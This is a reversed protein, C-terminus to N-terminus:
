EPVCIKGKSMAILTKYAVFLVAFTALVLGFIGFLAYLLTDFGLFVEFSAISFACLPFTFAWWSLAFSIRTFAKALSLMLLMFFLAVFYAVLSLTSHGGFLAAFDVVFISPPAIFIFLTPLFKSELSEEFILRSTILATLVLWFFCGIAFFFLSFEPSIKASHGALPVILNGVIPIFWAPSLLHRKMANVFWFNIVFISLFLQLFASVYFAIQLAFLVSESDNFAGLFTIIILAGIPIASLFNIKVQHTAEARFQAFHTAIKLGYIGLLLAFIMLSAFGLIVSVCEFIESLNTLNQPHNQMQNQAFKASLDVFDANIGFAVSAKKFALTLGGIGMVSAFLMIPFHALKSHRQTSKSESSERVNTSVEDFKSELSNKM